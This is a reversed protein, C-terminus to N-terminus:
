CPKVTAHHAERCEPCFMMQGAQVERDNFVLPSHGCDLVVDFMNEIIPIPREVKVVRRQFRPDNFEPDDSKTHTLGFLDSM